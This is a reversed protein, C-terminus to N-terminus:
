HVEGDVGSGEGEEWRGYWEEPQERGARGLDFRVVSGFQLVQQEWVWCAGVDACSGEGEEWRGYWEEPQERGARGLDVSVTSGSESVQRQCVWHVGVDM